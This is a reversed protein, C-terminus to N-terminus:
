GLPLPPSILGVLLSSVIIGTIFLVKATRSVPPYSRMVTFELLFFFLTPVLLVVLILNSPTTQVQNNVHNGHAQIFPRINDITWAFRFPLNLAAVYTIGTLVMAVPIPYDHAFISNSRSATSQDSHNNPTSM